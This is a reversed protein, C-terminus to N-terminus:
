FTTDLREANLNKQLERLRAEEDDPWEFELNYDVLKAVLRKGMGFAEELLSIIDNDDYGRLLLLSYIRRHVECITRFGKENVKADIGRKM